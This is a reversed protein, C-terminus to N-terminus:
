VTPGQQNDTKFISTHIHWNDIGFEWNVGREHIEGKTIILKNELAILRSRSKFLNKQIVKELNQIYAMDYVWREREENLIIIELDMWIAAFPM